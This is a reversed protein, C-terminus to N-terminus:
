ETIETFNNGSDGLVPDINFVLEWTDGNLITSYYLINDVETLNDLHIDSLSVSNKAVHYVKMTTKDLLNTTTINGDEALTNEVAGYRQCIETLREDTFAM